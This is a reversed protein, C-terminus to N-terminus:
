RRSARALRKACGEHLWYPQGGVLYLGDAPNATLPRRCRDCLPQAGPHREWTAAGPRVLLTGRTPGPESPLLIAVASVALALVTLGVLLRYRRDSM